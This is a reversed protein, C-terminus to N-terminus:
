PLPQHDQKGKAPTRKEKKGKGYLLLCVNINFNYFRLNNPFTKYTYIKDPVADLLPPTWRNWLPDGGASGNKLPKARSHYQKRHTL